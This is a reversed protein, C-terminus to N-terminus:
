KTLIKDENLDWLFNTKRNMEILNADPKLCNSHRLIKLLIWGESKKKAEDKVPRSFNLFKLPLKILFKCIVSMLLQRCLMEGKKCEAKSSSNM